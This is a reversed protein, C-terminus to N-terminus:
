IIRKYNVTILDNLDLSFALNSNNFIIQNGSITYDHGYHQLTSNITVEPISASVDPTHSLTIINAVVQGGHFSESVSIHSDVDNTVDIWASNSYIYVKGDDQVYLVKENPTTIAQRTTDDVTNIIATTLAGLGAATITVNGTLGNVSDVAGSGSAGGGIGGFRSILGM